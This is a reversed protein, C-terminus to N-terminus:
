TFVIRISDVSEFIYKGRKKEKLFLKILGSEPIKPYLIFYGAKMWMCWAGYPHQFGQFM